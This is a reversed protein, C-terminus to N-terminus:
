VKKAWNKLRLFFAGAEHIEISEGTNGEVIHDDFRAIVDDKIFEVRSSKQRSLAIGESLPDFSNKRHPELRDLPIDTVRLGCKGHLSTPFRIQRKTDITVVEDTEGASDLVIASDLKVLAFFLDKQSGKLIEFRGSAIRNRRDEHEMMGALKQISVKGWKKRKSSRDQQSSIISLLRKLETEDGHHISALKEVMNSVGHRM